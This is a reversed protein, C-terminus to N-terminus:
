YTYIYKKTRKHTSYTPFESCELVVLCPSLRIHFYNGSWRTVPSDEYEHPDVM